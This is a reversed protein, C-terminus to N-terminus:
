KGKKRPDNLLTPLDKISLQKVALYVVAANFPALVYSTWNVGLQIDVAVILGLAVAFTVINGVVETWYVGFVQKLFSIFIWVVSAIGAATALNDWSFFNQGIEM